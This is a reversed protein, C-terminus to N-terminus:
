VQEIEVNLRGKDLQKRLNKAEGKSLGTALTVPYKAQKIQRRVEAPLDLSSCAREVEELISTGWTASDWGNSPKELIVKYTEVLHSSATTLHSDANLDFYYFVTGTESVEFRAQFEQAQKDLFAKAEAASLNAQMALQLISIKGGSSKLINYFTARLQERAKQSEAQVELVLKSGIALPPLGLLVLTLTSLFRSEEGANRNLLITASPLSIAVGAGLLIGAAIMKARAM